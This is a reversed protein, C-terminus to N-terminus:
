EVVIKGSMASGHVGCQYAFTSASDFKREFTGSSQATSTVGTLQISHQNSTGVWKWTVKTGAKVTVNDPSFSNDHVEIVQELAAKNPDQTRETTINANKLADKDSEGGGGGCAALAAPSIAIIGTVAAGVLRQLVRM